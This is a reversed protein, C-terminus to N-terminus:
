EAAAATKPTAIFGHVAGAPDLCWGAIKGSDNLHFALTYTSKPCSFSTYNSGTRSFGSTVGATTTYFGSIEDSKNIGRAYTDAAEPYNFVTCKGSKYEFGSFPGGSSHAVDGVILGADNIGYARTNSWGACSITTYTQTSALWEFGQFNGAHDIYFGVINGNDNVGWAETFTQGNSEKDHPDALATCAEDGEWILGAVGGYFSYAGVVENKNSIDFFETANELECAVITFKGKVDVFGCATQDSTASCEGGTIYGVIVGSNNIAYPYTGTAGPDSVPTYSYSVSAPTSDDQAATEQSLTFPTCALAVFFAVAIHAHCLLKM